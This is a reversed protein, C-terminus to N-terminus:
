SFPPLLPTAPPTLRRGAPDAPLRAQAAAREAPQRLRRAYLETARRLAPDVFQQERDQLTVELGRLACWAAIDGGMVGAGIVHVRKLPVAAKGGLSKLRDQLLFMRVLSRATETAFLRAISHAEAEYAAHGRAGYRVWLDIM